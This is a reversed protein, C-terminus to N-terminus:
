GHRAEAIKRATNDIMQHKMRALAEECKRIGMEAIAEVATTYTEIEEPGGIADEAHYTQTRIHEFLKQLSEIAIGADFLDMPPTNSKKAAM